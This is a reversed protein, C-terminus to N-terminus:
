LDCAHLAGVVVGPALVVLDGPEVPLEVGVPFPQELERLPDDAEAGLVRHEPACAEELPPRHAVRWEGVDPPEPGVAPAHGPPVPRPFLGGRGARTRAAAPAA